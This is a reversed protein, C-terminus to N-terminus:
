YTKNNNDLEACYLGLHYHVGLLLSLRWNLRIVIPIGVSNLVKLSGDNKEIQLCHYYSRLVRLLKSRKEM